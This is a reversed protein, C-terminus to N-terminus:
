KEIKKLLDEARKAYFGKQNIITTLWEKAEVLRYQETLLQALEWQAEPRFVPPEQEIVARLRIEAIDMKFLFKSVLASYFLANQDQPFQNLILNFRQEALTYNRQHFAEIASELAFDYNLSITYPSNIYDEPKVEDQNGYRPPTSRALEDLMKKRQEVESLEQNDNNLREVTEYNVIKYHASAINVYATLDEDIEPLIKEATEEKEETPQNEAITSSTTGVNEVPSPTTSVTEQPTSIATEEALVQPQDQTAATEKATTNQALDTSYIAEQNENQEDEPKETKEKVTPVTEAETPQADDLETNEIKETNETSSEKVIEETKEIQKKSQLTNEATLQTQTGVPFFWVFAVTILTAAIGIAWWVTTSATSQASLKEPMSLQELTSWSEPVNELGELAERDLASSELVMEIRNRESESLEDRLYALLEDKTLSGEESFIKNYLQSM